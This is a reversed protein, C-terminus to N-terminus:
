FVYEGDETMFVEKVNGNEIKLTKIEFPQFSLEAARHGINLTARKEEGGYEFVRILTGEDYECKKVASIMVKEGCVSYYSDQCPRTGGHNAECVVIPCNLFSQAKQFEGGDFDVRLRGEQIGQSMIDYDEELDIGGLRLDGYIPSRLVTLGLVHNIMTYSFISDAILSIGGGKIWPGMPVDARTESRQICGYPVSVTHVNSELETELKFVYHQENWNVRYFVDFYRETEYFTYYMELKSFRFHYTFKLVTRIKGAEIVKVEQLQFYNKEAGYEQINFCWTDGDDDYCVPTLIKGCLKRGAQKDYVATLFGSEKAFEIRLRQTEVRYPDIERKEETKGTQVVKLMQYGASPVETKFVFRSRFGPIVSKERIIQCPIIKGQADELEIGKDYWDFEHAWQVEAEIYGDYAAANLNWVALNWIDHPNKGVTKIDKTISQLNYHMIENSTQIARSLSNEADFYADKISAGGLIDHFQSFLIDHWCSEMTKRDYNDAIVASMEANLAANEALRNLKKIRPYNSYPGFDGTLLEGEVTYRCQRHEKFFRSVTSFVTNKMGQIESIMKKTPAGGHDTVGYVIMIDQNKETQNEICQCLDKAYPEEARCAAIESGDIGKWLFLPSSLKLHHKEPRVFSYCDIRSKKLIQPLQPNHGFSDINFVSDSFRGFNEKLWKQGYLGQRIYSEGAASWCDAQVWWGEALEWRGEWVRKKIEEFMAPDTKKIWEFVPPTAFSYTFDETEQMRDLTSRFTARISAMAEDWKWLWVPDFHTNGIMYIKRM